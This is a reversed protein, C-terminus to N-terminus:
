HWIKGELLELTVDEVLFEFWKGKYGQPKGTWDTIEFKGLRSALYMLAVAIIDPEWQLCLM